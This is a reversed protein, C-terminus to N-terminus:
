PPVSTSPFVLLLLASAFSPTSSHLTYLCVIIKMKPNSTRMTGVLTTFAKIIDAVAKNQQVIDNTGLHM